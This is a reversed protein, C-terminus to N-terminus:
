LRQPPKVLTGTRSRTMIRNPSETKNTSEAPENAPHDPVVNLHQRNRQVEGTPTEVLYSRPTDAPNIVRGRVATNDSTVWVESDTPIEPLEQVRHQRDYDAKQREKFKQNLRKFEELYPWTPTLQVDTQPIPTRLRRGMLLEAPSLGCWPLPTARYCLLAKYPDTSQRLLQKVTQVMREAQGNSQPFRPSSTVHKIDYQQAFTAFEQSAYQPGNDSRLLEPIGHRAFLSKLTTIVSTSTTSKMKVVEPYRSFYDVVLLYHEKELEFLDSGVVQWPYEPLPTTVLPEKRPRDEKACSQCREVKQKVQQM